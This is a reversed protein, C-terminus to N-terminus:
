PNNLAAGIATACMVAKGREIVKRDFAQMGDRMWQDAQAKHTKLFARVYPDDALDRAAGLAIESKCVAGARTMEGMVRYYEARDMAHAPPAILPWALASAIIMPKWNM